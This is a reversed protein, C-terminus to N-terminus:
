VCSSYQTMAARRTQHQAKINISRNRNGGPEDIAVVHHTNLRFIDLIVWYSFIMYIINM